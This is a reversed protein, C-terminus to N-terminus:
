SSTVKTTQIAASGRRTVQESSWAGGPTMGKPTSVKTPATVGMTEYRKNAQLKTTQTAASGRHTVQESSWARVPTMRQPISEKTPATVVM